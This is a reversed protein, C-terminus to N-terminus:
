EVRHSQARRAEIADWLEQLACLQGAAHALYGIEKSTAMTSALTVADAIRDQLEVMVALYASPAEARSFALAGKPDFNESEVYRDVPITKTKQTFLM